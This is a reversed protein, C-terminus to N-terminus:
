VRFLPKTPMVDSPRFSDLQRIPGQICFSGSVTPAKLLMATLELEAMVERKKLYASKGGSM